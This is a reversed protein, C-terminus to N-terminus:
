VTDELTIQWSAISANGGTQDIKLSELLKVTSTRSMTDIFTLGADSVTSFLTEIDTLQTETIGKITHRRKYKWSAGQKIGTQILKGTISTLTKRLPILEYSYSDPNILFTLGGLSISDNVTIGAM